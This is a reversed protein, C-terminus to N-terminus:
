LLYGYNGPQGPLDWQHVVDGAMDILLAHHYFQPVYLTYGKAVKNKNHEILGRQLYRM